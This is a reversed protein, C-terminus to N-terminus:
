GDGRAKRSVIKRQENNQRQNGAARAKKSFSNQEVAVARTGAFDDFFPEAKPGSKRCDAHHNAKDHDHPYELTRARAGSEPFSCARACYRAWSRILIMQDFNSRIMTPAHNKRFSIVLGPLGPAPMKRIM